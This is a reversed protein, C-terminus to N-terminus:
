NMFYLQDKFVNEDRPSVNVKAREVPTASTFLCRM